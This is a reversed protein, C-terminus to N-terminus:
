LLHPLVGAMIGLDAFSTSAAAGQPESPVHAPNGRVSAGTSHFNFLQTNVESWDTLNTAAAHERFAQDYALWARSTSQHYTLLIMMQYLLLDKAHNPFRPTLVCCYVSFAEM